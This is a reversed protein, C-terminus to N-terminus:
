RHAEKAQWSHVVVVENIHQNIRVCNMKGRTELCWGSLM